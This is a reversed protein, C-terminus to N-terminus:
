FGLTYKAPMKEYGFEIRTGSSARQKFPSNLLDFVRSTILPHVASALIMAKLSTTKRILEGPSKRRILLGAQEDALPIESLPRRGHKKTGGVQSLLGM